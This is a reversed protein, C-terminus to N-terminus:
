YKMQKLSAGSLIIAATDGISRRISQIQFHGVDLLSHGDVRADLANLHMTGSSKIEDAMEFTLESSDKQQVSISDFDPIYSEIEMKSKGALKLGLYKERLKYIDLNTNIADISLLHPCSISILARTKMWDRVGPNELRPELEMFLTDNLISTKLRGDRSGNWYSLAGASGNPGPSFIIRTINGGRIKLHHFSGRSLKTYNWYPDTKDIKNYQSKLILDSAILSITFLCLLIILLLSSTKM